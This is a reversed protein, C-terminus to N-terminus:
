RTKGAAARASSLRPCTLQVHSEPSMRVKLVLRFWSLHSVLLVVLLLHPAALSPVLPFMLLASTHDAGADDEHPRQHASGSPDMVDYVLVQQTKM